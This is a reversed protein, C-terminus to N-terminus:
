ISICYTMGIFSHTCTTLAQWPLSRLKGLMVTTNTRGFRNDISLNDELFQLLVSGAETPGYLEKIAVLHSVSRMDDSTGMPLLTYPDVRRTPREFIIAWLIAGLSLQSCKIHSSVPSFSISFM